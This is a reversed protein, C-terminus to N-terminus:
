DVLTVLQSNILLTLNLVQLVLYGLLHLLLFLLPLVRQVFDLFNLRGVHQLHLFQHALSLLLPFLEVSQPLFRHIQVGLYCGSLVLEPLYVIFM